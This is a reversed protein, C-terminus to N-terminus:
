FFRSSARPKAIQMRLHQEFLVLCTHVNELRGYIRVEQKVSQPNNLDFNRLKKAIPMIKINVDAERRIFEIRQGKNGILFSVQLRNLTVTEMTHDRDPTEIELKDIMEEKSESMCAVPFSRLASHTIITSLMRVDAEIDRIVGELIIFNGHISFNSKVKDSEISEIADLTINLLLFGQRNLVFSLVDLEGSYWVGFNASDYVELNQKMGYNEIEDETVLWQGFILLVKSHHLESNFGKDPDSEYVSDLKQILGM